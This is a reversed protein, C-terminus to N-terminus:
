RLSRKPSGTWSNGFRYPVRYELVSSQSGGHETNWYESLQSSEVVDDEKNDGMLEEFQRDFEVAEDEEVDFGQEEANYNVQTALQTNIDEEPESELRQTLLTTTDDESSNAQQSECSVESVFKTLEHPPGPPVSAIASSNYKDRQIMQLYMLSEHQIQRAAASEAEPQEFRPNQAFSILLHTTQIDNQLETVSLKLTNTLINAERAACEEISMRRPVSFELVSSQSNSGVNSGVDEADSDSDSPHSSDFM